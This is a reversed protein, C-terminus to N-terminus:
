CATLLYNLLCNLLCNAFLLCATLLCNALLLCATLLCNALKKEIQDSVSLCVVFLFMQAHDAIQLLLIIRKIYRGCKCDPDSVITWHAVWHGDNFDTKKLIIIM